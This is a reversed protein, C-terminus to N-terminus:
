LDSGGYTLWDRYTPWEGKRRERRARWEEGLILILVFGVFYIVRLFATM